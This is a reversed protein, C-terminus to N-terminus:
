IQVDSCLKLLWRNNRSAKRKDTARKFMTGSLKLLLSNLSNLSVAAWVGWFKVQKWVDDKRQSSKNGALMHIVTGTYVDPEFKCSAFM